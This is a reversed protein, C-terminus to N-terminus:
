DLLIYLRMLGSPFFVYIHFMYLDIILHFKLLVQFMSLHAIKQIFYLIASAESCDKSQPLFSKRLDMETGCTWSCLSSDFHFIDTMMLLLNFFQTLHFVEDIDIAALIIVQINNEAIKMGEM